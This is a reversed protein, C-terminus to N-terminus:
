YVNFFPYSKIRTMKPKLTFVWSLGPIPKTPRIREETEIIVRWRKSCKSGYDLLYSSYGDSFPLSQFDPTSTIISNLDKHGYEARLFEDHLLHELVLLLSEKWRKVDKSDAPFMIEPLLGRLCQRRIQAFLFWIHSFVQPMPSSWRCPKPREITLKKGFRDQIPFKILEKPQKAKDIPSRRVLM